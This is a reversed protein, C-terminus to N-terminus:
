VVTRRSNREKEDQNETHEHLFPLYSKLLNIVEKEYFRFVAQYKELIGSVINKLNNLSFQKFM